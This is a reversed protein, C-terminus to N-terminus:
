RHFGAIRRNAISQPFQGHSGGSGSTGVDFCYCYARKNDINAMTADGRKSVRKVDEHGDGNGSRPLLAPSHLFSLPSGFLVREAKRWEGATEERSEGRKEASVRCQRAIAARLDARETTLTTALDRSATVRGFPGFRTSITQSERIRTVRHWHTVRRFNRSFLRKRSPGDRPPKMAHQHHTVGGNELYVVVLETRNSGRAAPSFDIEVPGSAQMGVQTVANVVGQVTSHGGAQDGRSRDAVLEAECFIM